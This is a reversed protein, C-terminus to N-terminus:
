KVKELFEKVASQDNGDLKGDETIKDLSKLAEKAKDKTIVGDVLAHAVVASSGTLFIQVWDIKVITPMVLNLVFWIAISVIYALLIISKNALKRMKEDKIYKSTLMKIPKKLLHVLGYIAGMICVMLIVTSLSYNAYFLKICFITFEAFGESM